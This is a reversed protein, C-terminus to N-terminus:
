GKNLAAIVFIWSISLLFLLIILLVKFRSKDNILQNIKILNRIKTIVNEKAFNDKIIYDFAGYKIADVAVDISSQGSLFIFEAKPNVSKVKKLIEVGNIGSLEYDQIIIPSKIKHIESLLEEGSYYAKVKEFGQKEIFKCIMVNLPKDDDVVLINYQQNRKV